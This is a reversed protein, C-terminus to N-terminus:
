IQRLGEVLDCSLLILIYPMDFSAFLLGKPMPEEEPKGRDQCATMQRGLNWVSDVPSGRHDVSSYYQAFRM